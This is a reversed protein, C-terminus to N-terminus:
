NDRIWNVSIINKDLIYDMDFYKECNFSINFLIM